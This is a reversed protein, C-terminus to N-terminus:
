TSQRCARPMCDAMYPRYSFLLVVGFAGLVSLIGHTPRWGVVLGTLAVITACVAASLLDSVTGGVLVPAGWMPLTRFREVMRTSLDTALGEGTGM